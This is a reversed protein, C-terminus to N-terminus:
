VSIIKKIDMEWYGSAGPLCSQTKCINTGGTSLLTSLSMNCLSGMFISDGHQARTKLRNGRQSQIPLYLHASLKM